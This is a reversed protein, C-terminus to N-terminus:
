TSRQRRIPSWRRRGSPETNEQTSRRAIAGVAGLVIAMGILQIPGVAEGLFTAAWFVGLGPQALQLISITGVPVRPQAWAILGHSIMGSTLALLTVLVWGRTSLGVLDVPGGAAVLAIPLTTICAATSMVAMFATTSLESRAAKAKMLYFVWALMSCVVLLDGVYSTGKAPAYSL